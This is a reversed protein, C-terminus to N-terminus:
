VNEFSNIKQSETLTYFPGAEELQFFAKVVLNYYNELTFERNRYYRASQLIANSNSAKTEEYAKTKFNLEPYLYCKRGNNSRTHRYLTNSGSGSTGIFQVLLNYFTEIDDNFAQVQLSACFKLDGERTNWAANYKVAVDPSLLYGM